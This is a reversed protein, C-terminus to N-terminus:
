RHRIAIKGIHSSGAFFRYAEVAQEFPFERDVIPALKAADLARVLETLMRVSGNSIAKMMLNKVYFGPMKPLDKPLPGTGIMVIRANPACAQMSQDLTERGVNELVVDVGRGGTLEIIKEGWKPETRYNVAVDAGLTRMRALKEDSSSTVVVQAGALRALQLGFTSVGGTGLTLVTEGSRVQAVHHLAHWATVGSGSLVSAHAYSMSDPLKVLSSAPLTTYQALWGDIENGIDAAYNSPTWPGDVWAGFHCATVRDGVKVQTVGPGVAIVRGAGESLPILDPRKGGLFRSSAIGVDRAAIASGHVEILAQGISPAAWSRERRLLTDFGKQEGVEYAAGRALIAAAGGKGAGSTAAAGTAAALPALTGGALGAAVFQRRNTSM